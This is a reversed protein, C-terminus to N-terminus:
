PGAVEKAEALLAATEEALIRKIAAEARRRARRSVHSLNVGATEPGTLLYEPDRCGHPGRADHGEEIQRQAEALRRALWALHPDRAVAITEGEADYVKVADARNRLWAHDHPM